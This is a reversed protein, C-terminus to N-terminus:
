APKRDHPGGEFTHFTQAQIAKALTLDYDFTIKFNLASGPAAVVVGGLDAVLGAEDTFHNSGTQASAEYSQELCPRYFLQPTQAARLLDRDFPGALLSTQEGVFHVSDALPVVPTIGCPRPVTRSTAKLQKLLLDVLGPQAFPRAAEAVVVWDVGRSLASVGAYASAQRSTGGPIVRVPVTAPWADILETFRDIMDDPATVTVESVSRNTALGDLVHQLLPIGGLEILAKPGRGLRQGTGAALLVAGVTRPADLRYHHQHRRTRPVKGTQTAQAIV